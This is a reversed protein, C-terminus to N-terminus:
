FLGAWEFNSLLYMIFDTLNRLFPTLIFLSAILFANKSKVHQPKLILIMCKLCESQWVEIYM